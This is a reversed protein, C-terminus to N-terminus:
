RLSSKTPARYLEYSIVKGQRDVRALVMDGSGVSKGIYATINVQHTVLVLASNGKKLLADSIFKKLQATQENSKEAEGFFSGLSPEVTVAGFNLLRATDICRCWPSSYVQASEIGQARLWHGIQKAQQKGAEGLNRQTSCDGLSYNPPDGIGPADAHRMLLIYSSSQLADSFDSAIVPNIPLMSCVAVLWFGIRTLLCATIKRASCLM